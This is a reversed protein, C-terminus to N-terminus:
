GDVDQDMTSRVVWRIGVSDLYNFTVGRGRKQRRRDSADYRVSWGAGLELRLKFVLLKGFGGGM